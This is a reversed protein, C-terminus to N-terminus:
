HRQLQGIYATLQNFERCLEVFVGSGRPKFNAELANMITTPTDLGEVIAKASPDLRNKLIVCSKKMRRKWVAEDIDEPRNDFCEDLNQMVMFDVIGDKWDVWDSMNKLLPVNSLQVGGTTTYKDEAM